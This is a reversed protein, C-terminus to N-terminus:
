ACKPRDRPYGPTEPIAMREGATRANGGRRNRFPRSRTHRRLIMSASPRGTRPMGTRTWGRVKHGRYTTVILVVRGKRLSPEVRATAGEIPSCRFWKILYREDESMALEWIRAM